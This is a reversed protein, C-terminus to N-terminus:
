NGEKGEREKKPINDKSIGNNIFVRNDNIREIKVGNSDVEEMNVAM